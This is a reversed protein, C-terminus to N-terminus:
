AALDKIGDENDLAWQVGIFLIARVTEPEVGNARALTGIIQQAPVGRFDPSGHSVSEYTAIM